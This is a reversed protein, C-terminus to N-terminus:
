THLVVEHVLHVYVFTGIAVAEKCSAHWQRLMNTSSMFIDAFHLDKWLSRLECQLHYFAQCGSLYTINHMLPRLGSDKNELPDSVM